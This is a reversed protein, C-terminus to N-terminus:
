GILTKKIAAVMVWFMVYFLFCEPALFFVVIGSVSFASVLM